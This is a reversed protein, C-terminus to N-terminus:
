GEERAALAAREVAQALTMGPPWLADDAGQRMSDRISEIVSQCEALAARAEDREREAVDLREVKDQVDWGDSWADALEDDGVCRHPNMNRPGNDMRVAAGSREARSLRCLMDNYHTVKALDARLSTIIEDKTAEGLRDVQNSTDSM